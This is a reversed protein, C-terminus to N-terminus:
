QRNPSSPAQSGRSDHQGPHTRRKPKCHSHQPVPSTMSTLTGGKRRRPRVDVWGPSGKAANGKYVCFPMKTYRVMTRGHGSPVGSSYPGHSPSRRPTTYLKMSQGLTM